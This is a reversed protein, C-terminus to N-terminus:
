HNTKLKSLVNDSRLFINEIYYDRLFINTVELYIHKLGDKKFPFMKVAVAEFDKGYIFIKLAIHIILMDLLTFGPEETM